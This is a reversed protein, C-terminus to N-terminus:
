SLSEELEAIELDIQERRARLQAIKREVTHVKHVRLELNEWSLNTRDNDVFRVYENAELKRGLREEMLLRNTLQFKGERFTYHYGNPAVRTDGDKAQQRRSM